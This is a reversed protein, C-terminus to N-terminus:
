KTMEFTIDLKYDDDNNYSFIYTEKEYNLPKPVSYKKQYFVKEIATLNFLCVNESNNRIIIQPNEESFSFITTTFKVNSTLKAAFSDEKANYEGIQIKVMSKPHESMRIFSHILNKLESHEEAYAKAAEISEFHNKKSM